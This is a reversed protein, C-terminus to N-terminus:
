NYLCLETKGSLDHTGEDQKTGAFNLGLVFDSLSRKHMWVDASVSRKSILTFLSSDNDPWSGQMSGVLGWASENKGLESAVPLFRESFGM